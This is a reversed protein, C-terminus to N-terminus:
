GILHGSVFSEASYLTVASASGLWIALTDNAVLNVVWSAGFGIEGTFQNTYANGYLSTQSASNVAIQLNMFNSGGGARLVHANVQYRGSVPATFIGTSGNYHSGINISVANFIIPANISQAASVSLKAAWAPQYPMTVRGSADLAFSGAAASSSVSLQAPLQSTLLTTADTMVTGAADPLVLTRNSNSNPAEITFTGTGAANPVIAIKTM